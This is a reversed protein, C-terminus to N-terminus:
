VYIGLIIKINKDFSIVVIKNELNIKTLYM